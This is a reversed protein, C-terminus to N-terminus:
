NSTGYVYMQLLIWVCYIVNNQKIYYDARTTNVKFINMTQTLFLNKWIQRIRYHCKIFKDEKSWILEFLPEYPNKDFKRNRKKKDKNKFQYITYLPLLHKLYSVINSHARKGAIQFFDFPNTPTILLPLPHNKTHM